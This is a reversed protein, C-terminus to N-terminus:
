LGNEGRVALRYIALGVREIRCSREIV